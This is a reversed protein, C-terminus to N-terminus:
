INAQRLQKALAQLVTEAAGDPFGSVQGDGTEMLWWRGDQGLAFDATFFPSPLTAAVSALQDPPPPNRTEGHFRPWCGIVVGNLCFCRWEVPQDGIMALAEYRRFVLGGTLDNGQLARFRDIVRQAVETASADPIFCAEAWYGSAQSKVWDKVTVAQSQFVALASTLAGPQDIETLPITRTLPMWQALHRHAEPLHHGIVYAAPTTMLTIGRADLADHLRAYAAAPMMWGRYVATGAQDTRIRKCARKIDSALLADHDILLSGLGHQRAIAAETAFASDPASPEIPDSCHIIYSM